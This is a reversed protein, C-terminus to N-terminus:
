IPTKPYRLTLLLSLSSYIMKLHWMGRNLEIKIGSYKYTNPNSPQIHFTKLVIDVSAIYSILTFTIRIPLLPLQPLTTKYILPRWSFRPFHNKFESVNKTNWLPRFIVPFQRGLLAVTFFKGTTLTDIICLYNFLFLQKCLGSSM